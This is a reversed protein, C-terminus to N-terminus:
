FDTLLTQIGVSLVVDSQIDSSSLEVLKAKQHM